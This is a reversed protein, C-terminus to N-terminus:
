AMEWASVELIRNEIQLLNVGKFLWSHGGTAYPKGVGM